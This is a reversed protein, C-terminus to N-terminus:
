SAAGKFLTHQRVAKGRGSRHWLDCRGLDGASFLDAPPPSVAALQGNVLASAPLASSHTLQLDV